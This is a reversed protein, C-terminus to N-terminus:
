YVIIFIDASCQLFLIYHPAMESLVLNQGLFRGFVPPAVHESHPPAEEATTQIGGARPHIASHSGLTNDSRPRTATRFANGASRLASDPVRSGIIEAWRTIAFFFAAM